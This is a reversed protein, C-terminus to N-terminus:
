YKGQGCAQNLEVVLSCANGSTLICTNSALFYILLILFTEHLSNAMYSSIIVPNVLAMSCM